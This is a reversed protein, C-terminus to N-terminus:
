AEDSSFVDVIPSSRQAPTFCLSTVCTVPRSWLQAFFFTHLWSCHLRLHQTATHKSHFPVRTVCSLTWQTCDSCLCNCSRPDVITRRVCCRQVHVAYSESHTCVLPVFRLVDNCAGHVQKHTHSYCVKWGLWCDSSFTCLLAAVSFKLLCLTRLSCTCDAPISERRRFSWRWCSRRIRSRLVPCGLSLRNNRPTKSPWRPYSPVEM